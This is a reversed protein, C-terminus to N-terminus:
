VKETQYNREMKTEDIESLPVFLSMHFSEARGFESLIYYEKDFIDIAIYSNGEVLLPVCPLGTDADTGDKKVCIVKV